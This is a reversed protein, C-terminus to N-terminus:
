RKEDPGPEVFAPSLIESPYGFVRGSGFPNLSVATRGRRKWRLDCRRLFGSVGTLTEQVHMVVRLPVGTPPNTLEFTCNTVAYAGLTPTLRRFDNQFRSCRGWATGENVQLEFPYFLFAHATHNSLEFTLVFENGSQTNKLQRLTIGSAAPRVSLLILTILFAIVVAGIVVSKTRMGLGPYRTM